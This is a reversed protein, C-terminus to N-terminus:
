SRFDIFFMIILIFLLNKVIYFNDNYYFEYKELTVSKMASAIFDDTIIYPPAQGVM